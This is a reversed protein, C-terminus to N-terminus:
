LISLESDSEFNGTRLMIICVKNLAEIPRTTTQIEFRPLCVEVDQLQLHNQVNALSYGALDSILQSLGSRTNPLLLLLSYRDGQAVCIDVYRLDFFATQQSTVLAKSSRTVPIPSSPVVNAAHKRQLNSSVTTRLGGIRPVRIISPIREESVDTKVLAVRRLM